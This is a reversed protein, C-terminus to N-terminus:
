EERLLTVLDDLSARRAPLYTAALSVFTLIFAVTVFSTVDSPSVGYLLGQTLRLSPVAVAIGFLLGLVSLQFGRAVILARLRRPTAGLAMRLGLEARRQAVFSAIVGYIGTVALVLGVLSFLASLFAHFRPRALERDVLAQFTTVDDLPIEADLSRIRDLIATLADEPDRATHVVLHRPLLFSSLRQTWLSESAYYVSLWPRRLERFRTDGAVGVIRFRQSFGETWKGIPDEGPWYTNAVSENVIAVPEAGHRDAETFARGRVIPIGMVQFFNPAVFEQEAMANEWAQEETQGEFRMGGSIGRTGGGPRFLSPTAGLIGPLAEVEEQMRRHFAFRDSLDPYKSESLPVAISLLNETRFGPDISQTALLSRVLLSSATLLVFAMAIEAVVLRGVLRTNVLGVTKGKLSHVLDLRTARLAPWLGFGLTATVALIASFGLVVRDLVIHETRPLDNGGFALLLEVGWYAVLWGGLLGLAAILLSEAVMQRILSSRGAGLAARVALERQRKATRVLFLGALNVTAIVLLLCVAGFLFLSATGAEGVITDLLPTMVVEIPDYRDSADEAAHQEHVAQLQARAETLAVEPRLRGILDCECGLELHWVDDIALTPVYVDAPSSLHFGAPLVGVVEFREREGFQIPVTQGLVSVDEGFRNRFLEYSLLIPPVATRDDDAAVFSRGYIPEVGLVDFFNASVREVYVRRAEGDVSWLGEDAGM